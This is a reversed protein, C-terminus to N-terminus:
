LVPTRIMGAGPATGVIIRIAKGEYFPAASYAPQGSAAIVVSLLVLATSVLPLKILVRNPM